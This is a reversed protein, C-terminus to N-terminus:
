LCLNDLDPYVLPKVIRWYWCGTNLISPYDHTPTHDVKLSHCFDFTCWQGVSGSLSNPDYWGLLLKDEQCVDSTNQNWTEVPFITMFRGASALGAPSPQIPSVRPWKMQKTNNEWQVCITKKVGAGWGAGWGLGDIKETEFTYMVARFLSDSIEWIFASLQTKVQKCNEREAPWNEEKFSVKMPHSSFGKLVLFFFLRTGKSFCYAKWQMKISVLRCM